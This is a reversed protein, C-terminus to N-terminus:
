RMRMTQRTAETADRQAVRLQALQRRLQNVTSELQALQTRLREVEAQLEETRM